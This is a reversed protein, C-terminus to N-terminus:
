YYSCHESVLWCCLKPTVLGRDLFIVAKEASCGSFFSCLNKFSKIQDWKYLLFQQWKEVCKFSRSSLPSFSYQTILCLIFIKVAIDAIVQWNQYKVPEKPQNKNPHDRRNSGGSLCLIQQVEHHGFPAAAVVSIVPGFGKQAWAVSTSMLQINGCSTESVHKVLPRDSNLLAANVRLAGFLNLFIISM